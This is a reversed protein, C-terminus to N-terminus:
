LLYLKEAIRTTAALVAVAVEDIYAEAQIKKEALTDKAGMVRIDFQLSEFLRIISNLDAHIYKDLLHHGLQGGFVFLEEFEKKAMIGEQDAEKVLSGLLKNRRKNIENWVEEPSAAKAEALRERLGAELAIRCLAICALPIGARYCMSGFTLFRFISKDFFLSEIDLKEQRHAVLIDSIKQTVLERIVYQDHLVGYQSRLGDDIRLIEEESPVFGYHFQIIRQIREVDLTPIHHERRDRNM